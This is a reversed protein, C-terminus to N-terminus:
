PGVRDVFALLPAPLESDFVPDPFTAVLLEYFRRVQKVFHVPEGGRARGHRTNEYWKRISLLPLRKKVEGWQNPNAGQQRTITRADYVHGLGVNYAALALWLRNADRADEPIRDQVLKLYRAGGSISQAPDTRDEVGMESAAARTLMMIGKVGTPSVADPDWRSEQYGVAALLRWDIGTEEGADRFQTVYEPLRSVVDNSFRDDTTLEELRDFHGYYRELLDELEGDNEIQAFFGEVADYLSWDDAHSVAWALDIPDGVDAAIVLEPTTRRAISVLNSPAITFDTLGEQVMELVQTGTMDDVANWELSSDSAAVSWLLEEEITGAGVHVPAPADEGNAPSKAFAANYVIQNSVTQYSPGYRVREAASSVVPLGAAALDVKGKTVADLVDEWRCYPALKVTVGLKRAFMQVLDHEFGFAGEPGQTFATPGSRTAIVIEGKSLIRELHSDNNSSNSGAFFGLALFVGARRALARNGTM